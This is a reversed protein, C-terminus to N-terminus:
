VPCARLGAHRRVFGSVGGGGFVFSSTAQGLDTVGYAAVGSGICFENPTGKGRLHGQLMQTRSRLNHVELVPLTITGASPHSTNPSALGDKKPDRAQTAGDRISSLSPAPWTDTAIPPM